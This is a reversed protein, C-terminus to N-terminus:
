KLMKSYKNNKQLIPASRQRRIGTGFKVRDNYMKIADNLIISPMEAATEMVSPELYRRPPVDKAGYEYVLSRFDNSSFIIKDNIMQVSFSKKLDKNPINAQAINRELKNFFYQEIYALDKKYHAMKSTENYSDIFAKASVEPLVGTVTLDCTFTM